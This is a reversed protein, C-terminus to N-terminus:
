PEVALPPGPAVAGLEGCVEVKVVKSIDMELPVKASKALEGFTVTALAASPEPVIVTLGVETFTLELSVGIRV